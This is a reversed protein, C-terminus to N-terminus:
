RVDTPLAPLLSDRVFRNGPNAELVRAYAARADAVRGQRARVMGLWQYVETRGWSPFPTHASDSQFYALARELEAAAKDTGGGFLKPKFLAGIGRVLYVRPNTPGRAAARDMEANSRPGLRIAAFPNGSVAIKQGITAGLLASNEPWALTKGARSLAHEASDLAAKADTTRKASFLVSGKRYWAYGLYHLLVSDTPAFKLAQDVVAIAQEIPGIDLASLGREALVQVSDAVRSTPVQAPLVVVAVHGAAVLIWRLRRLM